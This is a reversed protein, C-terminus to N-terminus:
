IDDCGVWRLNTKLSITFYNVVFCVFLVFLKTNKPQGPLRDNRAAQSTAAVAIVQKATYYLGVSILLNYLHTLRLSLSGTVAENCSIM